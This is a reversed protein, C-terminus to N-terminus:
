EYRTKGDYPRDLGTKTRFTDKRGYSYGAVRRRPYRRLITPAIAWDKFNKDFSLYLGSAMFYSVGQEARRTSDDRTIVHMCQEAMVDLPIEEGRDFHHPLERKLIAEANNVIVQKIREADDRATLEDWPETFFLNSKIYEEVLTFEM